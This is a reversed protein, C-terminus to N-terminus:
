QGLLTSQGLNLNAPSIGNAGTLLTSGNGSLSGTASAALANKKAIAVPDQATQAKPPADAQTVTQPQQEPAKPTLAKTALAGVVTTAATTLVATGAASGAWATFAAGTTPM